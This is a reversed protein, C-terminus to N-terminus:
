GSPPGAPAAAGGTAAPQQQHTHVASHAGGRGTAHGGRTAYQTGQQQSAFQAPPPPQMMFQIPPMYQMPPQQLIYQIPQQQAAAPAPAQGQMQTPAQQPAQPAQPAMKPQFHPRKSQDVGQPTLWVPLNGWRYRNAMWELYSPHWRKCHDGFRCGGRSMYQNCVERDQAPAANTGATSQMIRQVADVISDRQEPPLTTLPAQQMVIPVLPKQKPQAQQLANVAAKGTPCDRKLHGMQGCAFCTLPTAGGFISASCARMLDSHAAQQPVIKQVHLGTGAELGEVDRVRITEWMLRRSEETSADPRPLRHAVKEIVEVINMLTKGAGLQNAVEFPTLDAWESLGDVFWRRVTEDDVRLRMQMIQLRLSWSAFYERLSVIGIPWKAKQLITEENKAIEPTILQRGLDRVLDEPTRTRDLTLAHSLTAGISAQLADTLSPSDMHQNAALLKAVKTRWLPFGYPSGLKPATGHIKDKPQVYIAPNRQKCESLPAPHVAANAVTTLATVALSPLVGIIERRVRLMFPASPMSGQLRCCVDAHLMSPLATGIGASRAEAFELGLAAIVTLRQLNLDLSRWAPHSVHMNLYRVVAPVQALRLMEGFQENAVKLYRVDATVNVFATELGLVGKRAQELAASTALMRGETAAHRGWLQEREDEDAAAAAAMDRQTLTEELEAEIEADLADQGDEPGQLQGDQEQRRQQGGRGHQQEDQRHQQEDQGHQRAAEARADQLELEKKALKARLRAM